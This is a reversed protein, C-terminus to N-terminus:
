CADEAVKAAQVTEGHRVFELLAGDSIVRAESFANTLLDSDAEAGDDVLVEPIKRFPCIGLQRVWGTRPFGDIGAWRVRDGIALPSGNRDTM